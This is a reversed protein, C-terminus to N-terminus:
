FGGFSNEMFEKLRQAIFVETKTISENTAGGIHPTIVVNHDYQLRTLESNICPENALVDLGAGGLRGSRLAALLQHEDILEGRATNIILCGPKLAAFAAEDMIPPDGQNYYAHLSIVDSESLLESFAVRYVDSHGIPWPSNEYAIVRMGFALGYRAVMRGLRGFGIIGLTKGALESNWFEDRNWGGSVTHRSALLIKRRVAMLLAWTHEATAPLEELLGLAGRLSLISIGAEAAAAVDIHTLGTTPTAIVRLNRARGLFDKDLLHGLRAFVAHCGEVEKLLEARTFPGEVVTLRTGLIERVQPTNPTPETLLLRAASM